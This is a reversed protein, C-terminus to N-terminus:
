SDAVASYVPESPVDRAASSPHHLNAPASPFHSQHHSLNAPGTAARGPITAPYAAASSPGARTIFIQSWYVTQCGFYSVVFSLCLELLSFPFVTASITIGTHLAPSGLILDTLIICSGVLSFFASVMNAGVCVSEVCPSPDKKTWVSLSGSVIFSVGGWVLYGSFGLVGQIYLQTNIASFVHMLGILIQIAGLTVAEDDIFKKSDFTSFSSFSLNWQFEKPTYGAPNPHHGPLPPPHGPGPAHQLPTARGGAANPTLFGSNSYTTMGPLQGQSGPLAPPGPQALYINQPM